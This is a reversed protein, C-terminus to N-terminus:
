MSAAIAQSQECTTLTFKECAGLTFREDIGLPSESCLMGYVFFPIKLLKYREHSFSVTNRPLLDVPLDPSIQMHERASLTRVRKLQVLKSQTGEMRPWRTCLHGLICWRSGNELIVATPLLLIDIFHHFNTCLMQFGSTALHLHMLGIFCISLAYILLSLSKLSDNSM